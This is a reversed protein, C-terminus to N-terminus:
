RVLESLRAKLQDVVGAVPINDVAVNMFSNILIMKADKKPVGRSMLYFLAEEDLPGVAAGHGAVVDNQAINLKPTLRINGEDFLLGKTQIKTAAGKSAAGIIGQHMGSIKGKEFALARGVLTSETRPALHEIIVDDEIVGSGAMATFDRVNVKSKASLLKIKTTSKVDAGGWQVAWIDTDDAQSEIFSKSVVPGKNEDIVKIYRVKAGSHAILVTGMYKFEASDGKVREVVTVDAGEKVIVRIGSVWPGDVDAGHMIELQGSELMVERLRGRPLVGFEGFPEEASVETVCFSGTGSVVPKIWQAESLLEIWKKTDM